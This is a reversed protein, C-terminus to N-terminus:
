NSGRKIESGDEKERKSSGRKKISSGVRERGKYQKGTSKKKEEMM